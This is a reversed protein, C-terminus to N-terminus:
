SPEPNTQTEKGTEKETPSAGKIIRTIIPAIWAGVYITFYGETMKDAFTLHVIVWSTVLFAGVIFVSIKSVRGNEMWLDSLDFNQRAPDAHFRLLVALAGLAVLLFGALAGDFHAAWAVIADIM